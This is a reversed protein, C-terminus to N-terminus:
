HGLAVQVIKVIVLIMAIALYARLAALGIKRGTSLVPKSLMALPPMRWTDRGTRDVPVGGVSRRARVLVWGGAAVSAVVCAAMIIMIQQGTIAPFLVSATLVVSLTILVAIVGSTFLNTRRGNVWPGLVARDNCLLLLFVTASPLLVGALVQVGVTLLGLPSGPILVVAAAVAILAGYIAYFGKAQRVGRHLSHKLGLTDGVAYATSLSVAFAGIIAADLLAVAFVLGAVRGAYAAIGHALGASDTFNGASRTGAFAVATAGIIAAAGIVVIVIGIWLDAKEYRMFRPTIRKDIVYSQQFFLQWPAVTTGVIGIILLMVTAMQGSGGPLGPVVFGRAMQGANPHTLLVLPILLLSGACFTVAIREFRRFSGTFAAALIVCAALVVAVLKPVGLYSAALTIGIFETVLTLANLIFLDIVSFAGWFKGFRELILRAHGVGTVAGLRLVMEQNVYLVPILLLLTWLLRTGYNQGAQGYTSFAGADNDGCMVILGPGVIALLTKLKASLGVRPAFDDVAITGLAGRIDGVHADDLVAAPATRTITAM